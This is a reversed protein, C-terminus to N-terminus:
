RAGEQRASLGAEALDEPTNINFFPDTAEIPWSAQAYGHRGAWDRIRRTGEALLARRLDDQLAVPWLGVAFHIRSGSSACALPQASALRAHHLRQVLDAPIFPTDGPVSVVWAIGPRHAATWELATLIGSLPGLHGEILDPVVPYPSTGFRSIDGNANVILGDCQPALRQAAHDLLTLGDVTLLVKDGGGMRRSLGGALVVGLTPPPTM